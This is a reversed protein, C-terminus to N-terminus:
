FVNIRGFLDAHIAIKVLIADTDPLTIQNLAVSVIHNQPVELCDDALSTLIPNTSLFRFINMGENFTVDNTM